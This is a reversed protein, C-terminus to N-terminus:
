LGLAEPTSYKKFAWPWFPHKVSTVKQGLYVQTIVGSPKLGQVMLNTLYGKLREISTQPIQLLVVSGLEKRSVDVLQATVDLYSRFVPEGDMLGQARWIKYIKSLPRGQTDTEKDYTYKFEADKQDSSKVIWKPRSSHIICAFTEGLKDGDTTSFVDDKLVVNPFAGFGSGLDLGDFGSEALQRTVPDGARTPLGASRVGEAPLGAVAAPVRPTEQVQVIEEDALDVGEADDWPPAEEVAGRTEKFPGGLPPAAEEQQTAPIRGLPPARETDEVADMEPLSERGTHAAEPIPQVRAAGPKQGPRPLPM